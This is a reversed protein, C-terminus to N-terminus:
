LPYINVKTTGDDMHTSTRTCSSSGRSKKDSNENKEEITPFKTNEFSLPVAIPTDGLILEFPTKLRDAHRRDNHTFELTSLSYLWEEPHTSCYISLYAKIEQNVRETTGDMQPHYAASLASTIGLLKLLKLFAKSAFRPDRDSIIKDPLGFRKYLNNLLLQGTGESITKNCPILIAGKSLGQDVMVLISNFGDIEPLDTILDMSCYAFPRTSKAGETPIYAPKSPRQDIKFQQCIGCGRIYNKVFTRLGPWWYHNRISNFTELEGPHGATEHDHFMRTIDRRLDDNMPIYNKGKYFLINKGNVKELTWDDLDNRVNAPGQELLTTIAEMADQDMADCNAIREQLDIDILNIFLNEPLMPIDENDNDTEPVFDPRRSLADFQAM